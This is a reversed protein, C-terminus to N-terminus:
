KPSNRPTFIDKWPCTAPEACFHAGRGFKFHLGCGKWEGAPLDPHKTGKHKPGTAAAAGGGSNGGGGNNGGGGSNGGGGGRGRGRGRGGRNGRGGRGGRVAAIEATAYPIAPQTEDLSSLAAIAPAPANSQFIDDALKCVADFTTANFEM